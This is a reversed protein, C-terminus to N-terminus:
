IGFEAEVASATPDTWRRGLGSPPQLGGAEQVHKELERARHEATHAALMRARAAAGIQQLYKDDLHRLYRSVEETTRAVLIERGPIFFNELGRWEDSLIPVGCAAAEFLRVSPSYGNAIMDARTINLTLRQSNYFRRHQSPALHETRAVNAPWQVGDPYQAGAVCFSGAAWQRAPEILLRELAPQRDRSYTGLYGMDYRKPAGPLPYYERPEVSCYLPRPRVAGFERYLRQLIPGGAFSFYLDFRPVLAATLYDCDGRELKAVTAPTDIDYFATLGAARPLLWEALLSGQPVFSGLIVLDAPIQQLFLEELEAISSYLRVQCYTPNPLDRHAAYWKADREFFRVRHGRNALAHALARYTTAHGNGWASTISLGFIVIDLPQGPKV